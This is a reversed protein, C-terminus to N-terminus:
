GDCRSEILYMDFKADCPTFGDIDEHFICTDNTCISGDGPCGLYHKVKGNIDLTDITRPNYKEIESEISDIAEEFTALAGSTVLTGESM